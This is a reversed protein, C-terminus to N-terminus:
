RTNMATTTQAATTTPTGCSYRVIPASTSMTMPTATPTARPRAPPVAPRGQMPREGAPGTQDPHQNPV